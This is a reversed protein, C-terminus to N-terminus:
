ILKEGQARQEVTAVGIEGGKVPMRIRM